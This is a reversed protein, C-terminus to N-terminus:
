AIRDAGAQSRPGKILINPGMQFICFVLQSCLISATLAKKTNVLATTGYM